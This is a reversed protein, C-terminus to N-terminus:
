PKVFIAKAMSTWKEGINRLSPLTYSPGVFELPHPITAPQPLDPLMALPSVTRVRPLSRVKQELSMPIM